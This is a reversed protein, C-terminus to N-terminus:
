RAVAKAAATGPAEPSLCKAKPPPYDPHQLARDAQELVQRVDDITLALALDTAKPSIAFAVGIARGQPDVLPSGSDGGALRAALFLVNRHHTPGTPDTIDPMRVERILAVEYPSMSVDAEGGPHGFVAGVDGVRASRLQLAPADLGSVQLVALDRSTDYAVLRADREYDSGDTTVKPMDVGAVVHANTVVLDGRIVFGSGRRDDECARGGIKVVSRRAEAAIAPPVGSDEPPRPLGDAPLGTLLEQWRVPGV